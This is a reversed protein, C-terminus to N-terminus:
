PANKEQSAQTQLWINVETLEPETFNRERLPELSWNMAIIQPQPTFPAPITVKGTERALFLAAGAAESEATVIRAMMMAGDGSARALSVVEVALPDPRYRIYLLACPSVLVGSAGSRELGPPLLDAAIFQELLPEVRSITRRQLAEQVAYLTLGIVLASVERVRLATRAVEGDPLAQKNSSTKAINAAVEMLPAAIEVQATLRQRRVALWNLTLIFLIILAATGGTVLLPSPRWRRTIKRM